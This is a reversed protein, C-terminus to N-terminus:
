KGWREAAFQDATRVGVYTDVVDTRRPEDCRGEAELRIENLHWPSTLGEGILKATATDICFGIPLDVTEDPEPGMQLYLTRPNKRGPRLHPGMKGNNEIM